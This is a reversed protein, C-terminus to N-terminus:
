CIRPLLEGLPMDILRNGGIRTNLVVQGNGARVTGIRAAHVGLPQSGLIQLLRGCDDPAVFFLAKGENAISFPDLGLLQCVSEVTDSIPIHDEDIYMDVSRLQAIENLTSALGGRTPDRMAHLKVDADLVKRILSSLPNVDSEIDTILGFDERALLVALGHDGINGNIIIEDGPEIYKAGLKLNEPVSGIGATNIFLKDASGRSVVKTDGAVIKVGSQKSTEAMSRVINDLVSIELGEELIFGATLYLPKAGRVALDNITGSVALKGIDGGPFQLPDVVYSDTTFAINGNWGELVASDELDSLYSNRFHPIFVNELLDHSQQGGSGHSKRIKTNNKM